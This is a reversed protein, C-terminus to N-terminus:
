RLLQCSTSIYVSVTSFIAFPHEVRHVGAYVQLKSRGVQALVLM